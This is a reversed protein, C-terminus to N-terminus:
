HIWLDEIKPVAISARMMKIMIEKKPIYICYPSFGEIYRSESYVLDTFYKPMSMGDGDDLSGKILNDDNPFPDSWGIISFSNIFFPKYADVFKNQLLFYRGIQSNAITEESVYEDTLIEETIHRIRGVIIEELERPDHRVKNPYKLRWQFFAIM